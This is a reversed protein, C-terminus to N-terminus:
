RAPDELRLDMARLQLSRTGNFVNEDVSFLMELPYGARLSQEVDGLRSGMGFGIVDYPRSETDLVQRVAFKLHKQQSGVTRPRAVVQLATGHFVPARNEPGYPAFQRLVNWFRADIANLQLTADVEIEPVLAELDITERVIENFRRQFEPVNAPDLSLGAAFDHGGFQILLDRCSAIANYINFGNVSRASGKAIGGVTCLMISPKYFREVLRSAVIGIVGLHWEDRHLVISLRDGVSLQREALAIAEDRISGDLTRRERNTEELREALQSAEAADDTLLLAVARGADGMRGAANLRPGITFIIKTSDCERLDIKALDALARLGLRPATIIRALGERMLVRNEGVVPVVDSAISIAVLDLYDYAQEPDRGLRVLVAQILKFGVGCGTLEKFPYTCDPRKPDLVAVCTPIQEGATHHDCIILDINRSCAYEAEAIATIGCDLAIILDAGARHAVDIGERCLGYGNEYRDPIFFDAELGLSRLFGTMLAASTTGDVDYDGYVIVRERREVASAVRDAALDMDQMLFPDHLHELTPRFFLRADDFSRIGRLVLIRALAEPLNNLEVQLRSVVEADHDNRTIWRHRM